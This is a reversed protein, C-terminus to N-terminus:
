QLARSIERELEDLSPLIMSVAEHIGPFETEVIRWVEDHDIGEYQHILVYRFGALARWPIHPHRERFDAPVRKAAESIIELNRIVADRVMSDREYAARGGETYQRIRDLCELIQVLCVRPDKM